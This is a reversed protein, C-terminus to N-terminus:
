GEPIPRALENALGVRLQLIKGKLAALYGVGIIELRKEYGQKVGVVMNNVISRTLGHLARSEREDNKRTVLIQKGEADVKVDIEPRPEWSLKGKPGEVQVTRGSLAVKVGDLIPVPKNGIRSM